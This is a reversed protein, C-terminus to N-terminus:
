AKPNAPPTGPKPHMLEEGTLGTLKELGKLLQFLAFMLVALMPLFIVPWSYWQMTGLQDNFEPTGQPAKLLWRALGYNLGASVLFSGALIWSTQALLKEFGSVQGRVELAAQIRATDLVTDNYLLTRVLPQRTRLSIPIALGLLLPIAAEKVAYWIPDTKLLGLVGTLVVSVLGLVSFANCVRRRLYDWIGYGLPVALAVLLGWVPGLWADKSLHKLLFGPLVVNCILNLWVNERPRAAPTTPATASM